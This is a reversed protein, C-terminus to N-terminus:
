IFTLLFLFFSINLPWMHNSIIGLKVLTQKGHTVTGLLSTSFYFKISWGLDVTDSYMKVFDGSSHYTCYLKRFLLEGGLNYLRHLPPMLHLTNFWPTMLSKRLLGYLFIVSIKLHPGIIIYFSM